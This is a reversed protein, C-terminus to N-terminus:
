FAIMPFHGYIIMKWYNRQLITGNYCSERIIQDMGMFGLYLRIFPGQQILNKCAKYRIFRNISRIMCTTQKTLDEVNIDM